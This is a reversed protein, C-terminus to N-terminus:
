RFFEVQFLKRKLIIFITSSLFAVFLATLFVSTKNGKTSSLNIEVGEKADAQLSMTEPAANNEGIAQPQGSTKPFDWEWGSATRTYAIGATAKGFDVSDVTEGLPNLLEVGDGSNNLTIGTEPRLLTLSDAGPIEEMLTYEKISGQKDRLVWGSLNVEFDNANKLKVYENDADSGEPSPMIESIIIGGPYEIQAPRIEASEATKKSELSSEPEPEPEPETYDSVYALGQDKIKQLTKEGIGSVRILDDVSSFPRADIIRQAYVPGVGTITQLQELNATNIDVMEQGLVLVPLFLFLFILVRKM